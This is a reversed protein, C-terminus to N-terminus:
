PPFMYTVMQQIKEVLNQNLNPPPNGSLPSIPSMNAQINSDIHNNEVTKKSRLSLSKTPTRSEGTLRTEHGILATHINDGSVEHAEQIHDPTLQNVNGFQNVNVKYLTKTMTSSPNVIVRPRNSNHSFVKLRRQNFEPMLVPNKDSALLPTYEVPSSDSEM